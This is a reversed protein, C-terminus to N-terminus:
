YATIGYGCSYRAPVWVRRTQIDYHGPHQIVDYYGNAVLRQHAGHADYYTEYRAPVWVRESHGPTWVRESVNQYHGQVYGCSSGHHHVPAHRGRYSGRYSGYHSGSYSRHHSGIYTGHHSGSYTVGYGRSALDLTVRGHKTKKGLSLRWRQANASPALFGALTLALLTRPLLAAM